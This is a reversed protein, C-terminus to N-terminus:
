KHFLNDYILKSIIENNIQEITEPNLKNGVVNQLVGMSEWDDWVGKKTVCWLRLTKGDDELTIRFQVLTNDDKKIIKKKMLYDAILLLIIIFLPLFSYILIIKVDTM